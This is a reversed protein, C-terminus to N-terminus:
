NVASSETAQARTKMEGQADYVGRRSLAVPITKLLVELDLRLSWHDVYWLDIQMREDWTLLQRGRVVALGTCGPLMDHRRVESPGVSGPLLPRPGVLSMEGKLVNILQPIEDLSSTRLFRGFSTVM